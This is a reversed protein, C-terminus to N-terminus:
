QFRSCPGSSQARSAGVFERKLQGARVRNSDGLHDAEGVVDLLVVRGRM